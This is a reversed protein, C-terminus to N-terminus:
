PVHPKSKGSSRTSASNPTRSTEKPMRRQEAKAINLEDASNDRAALMQLRQQSAFDVMAAYGEAGLLWQTGNNLFALALAGFSTYADFYYDFRPLLDMNRPLGLANNGGGGLNAAEPAVNAGAGVLQNYYRVADRNDPQFQLAAAFETVAMPLYSSRNAIRSNYRHYFYIGTVIRFPAWYNAYIGLDSKILKLYDQESVISYDIASSHGNAGFSGEEAQIDGLTGGPGGAGGAGGEAALSPWCEELSTFVLTGANGGAGGPGGMAPPVEPIAPRIVERPVWEEREEGTGPDMVTIYHGEIADEPVGESGNAGAYGNAGTAGSVNIQANISRRCRVTVTNGNRSPYAGSADIMQGAGDYIDAVIIVPRSGVRLNFGAEHSVLRGLLYVPGDGVFQDYFAQVYANIRVEDRIYPYDYAM